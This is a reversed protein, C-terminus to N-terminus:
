KKGADTPPNDLLRMAPDLRKRFNSYEPNQLVEGALRRFEEKEIATAEGKELKRLLQEIREWQPPWPNRFEFHAELFDLVADEMDLWSAWNTRWNTRWNALDDGPYVAKEQAELARVLLPDNEDIGAHKARERLPMALFSNSRAVMAVPVSEGTRIAERLRQHMKRANAIM